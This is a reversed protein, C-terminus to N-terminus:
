LHSLIGYLYSAWFEYIEKATLDTKPVIVAKVLENAESDSVGFVVMEKVKWHGSIQHEVERPNVKNGSINIFM